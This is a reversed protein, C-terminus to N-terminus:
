CPGASCLRTVVLNPDALIAREKFLIPKSKKESFLKTQDVHHASQPNNSQSYSMVSRGHPGDDGFQVWMLFSSGSAIDNWGQGPAWGDRSSILNYQGAASPGGPIPYRVGAREDYQYNRLSANLPIGSNRLDAVASRLAKPVDPHRTNLGRPTNMPDRPDFPVSFVDLRIPDFPQKGANINEFFRRWLVAGQADINETLDWRALVDCAEGVETASAGRCMTVVADRWLLASLLKNNMTISELQDLTFRNGPLGDAGGLREEIKLLGIRTRLTRPTREDGLILPYGDLLARLNNTWYSDNTNTVYDARALKPLSSPGFVGPIPADADSGWECSSRWGDMLPIRQSAMLTKGLESTVCQDLKANTVHPVATRDAYLTKGTSDAGITNLWGIALYRRGAADLEEVSGARNMDLQQNLWRFSLGVDRIAYATKNSWGYTDNELVLGNHTEWFTHSRRTLRGDSGKVDVSVTRATMKRTAGDYIYATPDTPGLKLEYVSYRRPTSLTASWAVKETTGFIIMPVGLIGAGYVNMKGPVNIHAEYWREPGDWFWHPNAFLMGRGNDTAEKGLAIMNSGPGDMPPTLIANALNAPGPAESREGISPPAASTLPQILSGSSLFLNWHLARLYVDKETISRVWAAGRCRADPINERGVEQLYRNYGAVYGRVMDRVQPTPGLPAPKRLEQGVVDLDVIRKWFFDSQLNTHRGRGGFPDAEDPGFYKSREANVTVWRAAIECLSDKAFAYGLGYGAGAFDDAKVHPVGYSTTRVEARLPAAAEAGAAPALALLLGSAAAM